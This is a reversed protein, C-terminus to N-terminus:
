SRALGVGSGFASRYLSRFLSRLVVSDVSDSVAEDHVRVPGSSIMGDMQSIGMESADQTAGTREFSWDPILFRRLTDGFPLGGSCCPGPAPEDSGLMAEKLRLDGLKLDLSAFSHGTRCSQMRITMLQKRMAPMRWRRTRGSSMWCDWSKKQWSGTRFDVYGSLQTRRTGRGNFGELGIIEGSSVMAEACVWRSDMNVEVKSVREGNACMRLSLSDM